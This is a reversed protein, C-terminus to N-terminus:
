VNDALLREYAREYDAVMRTASFREEAVARVGDADLALLQPLCPAMEDITDVVIGGRGHAVVEPVAGLRTALV